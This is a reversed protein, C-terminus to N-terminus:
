FSVMSLAPIEGMTEDRAARWAQRSQLQKQSGRPESVEIATAPLDLSAVEDLGALEGMGILGLLGAGLTTAEVSKSLLIPLGTAAALHKVMESNTTMKGDVMLRQIELNGDAEASELLDMSM